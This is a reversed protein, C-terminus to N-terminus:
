IEADRGTDISDILIGHLSRVVVAWILISGLYAYIAGLPITVISGPLGGVIWGNDGWHPIKLWKHCTTPTRFDYNIASPCALLLFWNIMLFIGPFTALVTFLTIFACAVPKQVLFYLTCWTPSAIPSVQSSGSSKCRDSLFYLRDLECQGLRRHFKCIKPHSGAFPLTCAVLFFSILTWAIDIALLYYLDSMWVTRSFPSNWWKTKQQKNSSEALLPLTDRANRATPMPSITIFDRSIALPSANSESYTVHTGLRSKNQM